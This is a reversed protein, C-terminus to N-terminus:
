GTTHLQHPKHQEDNCNETKHQTKEHKDESQTTDLTTLTETNNM